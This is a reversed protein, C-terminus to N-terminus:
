EHISINPWETDIWVEEEKQYYNAKLLLSDNQQLHKIEFVWVLHSPSYMCSAWLMQSLLPGTSLSGAEASEMQTVRPLNISRESRLTEKLMLSMIVNVESPTTLIIRPLGHFNSPIIDLINVTLAWYVSMQECLKISLIRSFAKKIM